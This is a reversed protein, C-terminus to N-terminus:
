RWFTSAVLCSDLDATLRFDPVDLVLTHGRELVHRESQRRESVMAHFPQIDFCRLSFVCDSPCDGHLFERNRFSFDFCAVFLFILLLSIQDLIMRNMTIADQLYRKRKWEDVTRLMEIRFIISLRYQLIWIM